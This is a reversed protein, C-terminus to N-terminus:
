WNKANGFVATLESLSYPHNRGYTCGYNGHKLYFMKTRLRALRARLAFAYNDCTFLPIKPAFEWIDVWYKVDNYKTGLEAVQRTGVGQFGTELDPARRRFRGPIIDRFLAITTPRFGDIQEGGGVFGMQQARRELMFALVEADELSITPCRAAAMYFLGIRNFFAQDYVLGQTSGALVARSTRRHHVGYDRDYEAGQTCAGRSLIIVEHTPLPTLAVGQAAWNPSYRASEKVVQNVVPREGIDGDIQSMCYRKLHWDTMGLVRISSEYENRFRRM